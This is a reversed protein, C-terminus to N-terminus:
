EGSEIPLYQGILAELEAYHPLEPKIFIYFSKKTRLWAFKLHKPSQLARIDSWNLKEHWFLNSIEIGESKVKIHKVSIIAKIAMITSFAILLIYIFVMNSKFIIQHTQAFRTLECMFLSFGLLLTIVLALVHRIFHFRSISFEQSAGSKDTKHENKSPPISDPM